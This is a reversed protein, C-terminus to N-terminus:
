PTDRISFLFSRPSSITFFVHSITKSFCTIDLFRGPRNKLITYGIINADTHEDIQKDTKTM